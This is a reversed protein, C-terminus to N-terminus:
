MHILLRERGPCQVHSVCPKVTRGTPTGVNLTHIAMIEDLRQPIYTYLFSFKNRYFHM